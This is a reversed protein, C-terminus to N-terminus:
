ESTRNRVMQIYNAALRTIDFRLAHSKVIRALEARRSPNSLLYALSEALAHVSGVPYALESEFGEILDGVGFEEEMKPRAVLPCLGAAIGELTAISFGERESPMVFVRSGLSLSRKVEETVFGHFRV